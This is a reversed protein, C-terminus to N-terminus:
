WFYAAEGVVCVVIAKNKPKQENTGGFVLDYGQVTTEITTLGKFSAHIGANNILMDIKNNYNHNDIIENAARAVSQLDTFDAIVMTVTNKKKTTSSADVGGTGNKNDQRRRQLLDEKLDKLKPPSRGLVIVNAGLSFVKRTVELGIGSTAGTIVVNLGTLPFHRHDELGKDNYKYNDQHHFYYHEMYRQAAPLIREEWELSPPPQTVYVGLAVAVVLIPFYTWCGKVASSLSFSGSM